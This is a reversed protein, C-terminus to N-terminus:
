KENEGVESRDLDIEDFCFGLPMDVHYSISAASEGLPVDLHDFAIEGNGIM